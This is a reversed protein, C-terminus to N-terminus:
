LEATPEATVMNKLAQETLDYGLLVLVSLATAAAPIISVGMYVALSTGASAHGPAASGDYGAGSLLMGVLLPGFAFGAKEVMSYAGSFAGERRLGSRRYDYEMTDPLLAQGMLLAGGATWGILFARLLLLASPETAGALMWSLFVVANAACAAAFVRHKAWRRAARVWFPLSCLMGATQVLGIESVINLEKHLIHTVFYFLSTTSASMSLLLLLKALILRAFPKNGLALRLQAAIPLRTHSRPTTKAQATGAVCALMAVLSVAAMLAATISYALRGKGFHQVLLPAVSVGLLGAVAVFFVRAGMLRTREDYSDTMEAPMAMYPVNFLSYGTFYLLLSCLSWAGIPASGAAVIRDPVTFLAVCGAASVFAGTLMWPRRRGMRSETRDSLVGVLPDVFVDYARVAFILTGALAASVRLLDTMFFMFAYNVVYLLTVPGITGISWGAVTPWRMLLLAPDPMQVATVIPADERASAM